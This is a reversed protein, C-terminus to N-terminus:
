LSKRDDNGLFIVCIYLDDASLLNFDPSIKKFIEHWHLFFKM